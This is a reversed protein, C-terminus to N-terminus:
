RRRGRLPEIPLDRLGTRDARGALIADPQGFSASLVAEGTQGNVAAPRHSGDRFVLTVMWVPLLILRYNLGEVAVRAARWLPTNPANYAGTDTRALALPPVRRGTAQQRAAHKVYARATISAQIVDVRYIQAPWQALYRPDYRCLARLDYPMLEDLVAQSPQTAGCVLVGGVPYMGARILGTRDMDHPLTISALGEFAWFPLYVGQVEGRVVAARQDPSLRAHVARAAAVRDVSFPLLADPEEFSGVADEILIHASDCFRCQTSLTTGALTLGAGCNQCVLLRAGIQWERSFGFRRQLLANDLWDYGGGYGGGYGRAPATGPRHGCHGCVLAGLAADYALAGGCLACSETRSRAAVAEDAAVDPPPPAEGAPIVGELVGKDRWAYEHYPQAALARELYALREGRDPTTLSMLYWLDGHDGHEKLALRLVYAASHLDGERISDWANDLAWRLALPMDIQRVPSRYRASAAEDARLRDAAARAADDDRTTGCFQCWLGPDTPHPTLRAGCAPCSRPADTM